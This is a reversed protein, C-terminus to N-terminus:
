TFLASHLDCDAPALAEIQKAGGLFHTEPKGYIIFCVNKCFNPTFHIVNSFYFPINFVPTLRNPKKQTQKLPRLRVEDTICSRNKSKSSIQIELTLASCSM